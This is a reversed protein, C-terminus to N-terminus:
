SHRAVAIFKTGDWMFLQGTQVETISVERLTEIPTTQGQEPVQTKNMSLRNIWGRIFREQTEDAEAIRMYFAGRQLLQVKLFMEPTDKELFKRLTSITAPGIKGDVVIEGYTSGNRNFINLAQQIFQGSRKTGMNVAVDFAEAAIEADLADLADGSITDWYHTKYFTNVARIMSPDAYLLKPFGPLKKKSDVVAWGEWDPWYVRSIGVYTEGGRDAPDDAYGGEHHITHKVARDFSM